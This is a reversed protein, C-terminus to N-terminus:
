EAPASEPESATPRSRKWVGVAVKADPVDALVTAGAGVVCRDGINVNNAVTSNVGMFCYSGINVFGSVVVHSSIFCNDGVTSHHGIHNGSWLVTNAGIRVRPQIVNNEFIFAHEGIEVDRWIFARTSLYSVPAFGKAKTEHYLRTRLRNRDTYVLAAYFGHSAPDYHRDLDEFDIVPLGLFSDRKRYEREVAFAAVEYPSDWTFYEYAVEAFASDGILVIPRTKVPLSNM